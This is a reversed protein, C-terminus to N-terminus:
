VMREYVPKWDVQTDDTQEKARKIVDERELINGLSVMALATGRASCSDQLAGSYIHASQKITGM